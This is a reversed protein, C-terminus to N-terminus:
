QTVDEPFSPSSSCRPHTEAETMVAEAEEMLSFLEALTDASCAQTKFTTGMFQGKMYAAFNTRMEKVGTTEGLQECLGTVHRRMVSFRESVSIMPRKGESLEKFIWPNGTAARGVMLGDVHTVEIMRSASSFDVIDGNGIVPISTGSVAEKVRALVAWDAEGSYLQNQTRAHVAIMKAGAEAMYLAFDPANVSDKNWGSRIKVTIDKGFPEAAAVATRVIEAALLPDKMLASGAGTKVVKTVPCGMNIDIFDVDSLRADSLIMPIAIRFDEPDAGFLQIAVPGEKDRDIALYRMSRDLNGQFRIGRASVLETVGWSTGYDHCIARYVLSSTGAMPALAINGPITLRGIQLSHSFPSSAM